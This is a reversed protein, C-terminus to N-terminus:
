LGREPDDSVNIYLVPKEGLACRTLTESPNTFTVLRDPEFKQVVIREIQSDDAYIVGVMGDLTLKVVNDVDGAMPADPFYYLTVALRRDTVFGMEPMAARAATAVLDKWEARAKARKRQHSVPTGYIIFEVPFEPEL